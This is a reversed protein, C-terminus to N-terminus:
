GAEGGLENIIIFYDTILLEQDGKDTVGYKAVIGRMDEELQEIENSDPELNKSLGVFYKIGRRTMALFCENKNRKDTIGYEELLAFVRDKMAQSQPNQQKEKHFKALIGM